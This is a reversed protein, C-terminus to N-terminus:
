CGGARAIRYARSGIKHRKAPCRVAGEQPAPNYSQVKGKSLSYRGPISRCFVTYWQGKASNHARFFVFKRKKKKAKFSFKKSVTKKTSAGLELSISFSVKADLRALPWKVGGSLESTNSVATKLTKVRELTEVEEYDAGGPVWVTRANTLTFNHKVKRVGREMIRDQGRCLRVWRDHDSGKKAASPNGGSVTVDSASATTPQGAQVPAVTVLLLSLALVTGGLIRHM